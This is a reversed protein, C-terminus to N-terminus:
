FLNKLIDSVIRNSHKRCMYISSTYFSAGYRAHGLFYLGKSVESKGFFDVCMGGIARDNDYRFSSLKNEVLSQFITGETNLPTLPEEVKTMDIIINGKVDLKSLLNAAGTGSINESIM